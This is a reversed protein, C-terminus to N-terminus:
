KAKYGYEAYDRPVTGEIRLGLVRGTAQQLALKDTESFVLM